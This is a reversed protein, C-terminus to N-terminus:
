LLLLLLLLLLLICNGIKTTETHEDYYQCQQTNHSQSQCPDPGCMM